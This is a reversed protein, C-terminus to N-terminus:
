GAGRRAAMPGPGRDGPPLAGLIARADNLADACADNWVRQRAERYRGETAALLHPPAVSRFPTSPSAGAPRGFSVPGGARPPAAAAAAPKPEGPGVPRPPSSGGDGIKM